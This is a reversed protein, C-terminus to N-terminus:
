AEEARMARIVGSLMSLLEGVSSAAVQAINLESYSVRCLQQGEGVLIAPGLAVPRDVPDAGEVRAGGVEGLLVLDEAVELGGPVLDTQESCFSAVSNM